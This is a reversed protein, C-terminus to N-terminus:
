KLLIMKGTESSNGYMLTYFYVGSPLNEANWMIEYEGAALLENVPIAIEKGLIDYIKLTTFENKGNASNPISFKIKTAPNFPNPYNQELRFENPINSSIPEIGIPSGCGNTTKIILGDGSVFYGTNIDSFYMDYFGYNTISNHIKWTEGADTTKLVQGSTIAAYGVDNNVFHISLMDIPYYDNNYDYVSFWNSGSNTTKFIKNRTTFYGTTNSTFYFDFIFSNVSPFNQFDWNLGSNTTRSVGWGLNYDERGIFGLNENVFYMSEQYYGGYGTLQVWSLGGDTTKKLVNYKGLIFGTSSNIFHIENLQGYLGYNLNIWNLGGNTTKYLTDINAVYGTNADIFDM